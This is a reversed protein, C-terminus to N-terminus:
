LSTNVVWPTTIIRKIAMGISIPSMFIIIGSCIPARSTAYGWNFAKLKQSNKLPAMSNLRLKTM